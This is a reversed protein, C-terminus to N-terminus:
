VQDFMGGVVTVDCRNNAAYELVYSDLVLADLTHNGVADFMADQDAEDNWPLPTATVGRRKLDGLYEPDDWTGVNRGPLDSVGEVASVLRNATLNAATIAFHHHHHNRRRCRNMMLRASPSTTATYLSVLVLMIFAFSLVIVNSAAHSGGMDGASFNMSNAFATWVKRGLSNWRFDALSPQRQASSWPELLWVAVGVFACTLAIALWLHWKFADLFVFYSVRYVDASVLIRYGSKSLRPM